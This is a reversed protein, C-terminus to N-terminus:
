RTVVMREATGVGLVDPDYMAEARMAPRVFTGARTARALYGIDHSGAPLYNAFFTVREDHLERHSWYWAHTEKAALTGSIRLATDIPELGAPLFDQVAIQRRTEDAVVHLKVRLLQGVRPATVVKGTDADVLSRSV